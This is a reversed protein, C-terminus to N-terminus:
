KAAYREALKAVDYTFEEWRHKWERASKKSYRYFGKQNEVGHAHQSVMQQMLKPVGRENSLKPFLGKMVTAYAPIGTLDMWRFPGALTAWWGIDNRFSRDVTEVDAIGAEVLYCAERMMAYMMRNSLFGSIDENLLAPEKGCSEGFKRALELASPATKKGPTIELYRSVQAPEGWHMGFLRKPNKRGRQLLSIPLSSTNSAILAEPSLVQELQDYLALKQELDEPISEVVMWCNKLHDIERTVTIRNQWGRLRRAPDLKREQIEAMVRELQTTARRLHRPSSDVGIVTYGHALLCSAIGRGMLGLGVLGIPGNKHLATPATRKMM